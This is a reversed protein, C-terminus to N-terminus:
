QCNCSELKVYTKLTDVKTDWGFLTKTRTEKIENYLVNSYGERIELPKEFSKLKNYEEVQTDDLTEELTRYNVETNNMSLYAGTKMGFVTLCLCLGFFSFVLLKKM